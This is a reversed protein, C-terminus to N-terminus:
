FVDINEEQAFEEVYLLPSSFLLEEKAFTQFFISPYQYSLLMEWVNGDRRLTFNCINLPSQKPMVAGRM